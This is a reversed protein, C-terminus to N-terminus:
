SPDGGGRETPALRSRPLGVVADLERIRTTYSSTRRRNAALPGGGKVEGSAIPPLPARYPKSEPGARESLGTVLLALPDNWALM